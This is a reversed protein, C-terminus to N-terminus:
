YDVSDPLAAILAREEASLTALVRADVHRDFTKCWQQTYVDWYQYGVNGDEDQIRKTETNM